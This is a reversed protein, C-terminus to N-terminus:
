GPPNQKKTFVFVKLTRGDDQVSLQIANDKKWNMYSRGNEDIVEIRTIDPFLTGDMEELLDLDLGSKQKYIKVSNM